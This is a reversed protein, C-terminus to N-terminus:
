NRCNNELQFILYLPESTLPAFASALGVQRCREGLQGGGMVAANEVRPNFTTPAGVAGDSAATM